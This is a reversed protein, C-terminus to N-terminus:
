RRTSGSSSRTASSAGSSFTSHFVPASSHLTPMTPARRVIPPHSMPIGAHPTVTTHSPHNSPPLAYYYFVSPGFCCPAYPVGYSGYLGNYFGFPGYLGNYTGFANYSGFAGFAGYPIVYAPYAGGGGGDGTGTSLSTSDADQLDIEDADFTTGDTHGLVTVAEGAQLTAGAPNIVTGDGLTVSDTFGREDTLTLAYKGGLAAITGRITADSTAYSPVDAAAPRAGAIAAAIFAATM